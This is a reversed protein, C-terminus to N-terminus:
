TAKPCFLNHVPFHLLSPGPLQQTFKQLVAPHSRWTGSWGSPSVLGRVARLDQVGVGAETCTCRTFDPFAPAENEEM